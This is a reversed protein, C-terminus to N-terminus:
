SIAPGTDFCGSDRTSPFNVVNCAIMQAVNRAIHPMRVLLNTDNKLLEFSIVAYSINEQSPPFVIPCKSSLHIFYIPYIQRGDLTPIARRAQILKLDRVSIQEDEVAGKEDIKRRMRAGSFISLFNRIAASAVMADFKNPSHLLSRLFGDPKCVAVPMGLDITGNLGVHALVDHGDTIVVYAIVISKDTPWPKDGDVFSYNHQAQAFLELTNRSGTRKCALLKM